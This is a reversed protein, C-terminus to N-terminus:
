WDALTDLYQQRVGAVRRDLGRVTWGATPIPDLVKVDITAPHMVNSNHPALDEANRIVIPVIPVGAAMAIRFPGKKFPLLEGTVSRTGEPSIVLSLGNAVAEQVPGLAAIAGDTDARDIFVADILKGLAAGIPNEGAEKKGVSTFKYGVLRAAVFIDFNNKHNFIFVAPRVADLNSRGVVDLHVGCALFLSDALRRMFQDVGARRDRQLVGVLVGEATAPFIASTGILNRVVTMADTSEQAM